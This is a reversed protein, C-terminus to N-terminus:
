CSLPCHRARGVASTQTRWGCGKLSRQLLQQIGKNRIRATSTRVTSTHSTRGAQCQSNQPCSSTQIPRPTNAAVAPSTRIDTSHHYGVVQKQEQLASYCRSDTFPNGYPCASTFSKLATDTLPTHNTCGPLAKTRPKLNQRRTWLGWPTQFGSNGWQTSFANPCLM